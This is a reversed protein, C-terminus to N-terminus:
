KAALAGGIRESLWGFLSGIVMSVVINLRSPARRL